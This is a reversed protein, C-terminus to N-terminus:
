TPFATTGRHHSRPQRPGSIRVAARPLPSSCPDCNLALGRDVIFVDLVNELGAGIPLAGNATELQLDVLDAGVVDRGTRDRTQGQLACRVTEVRHCGVVHRDGIEVDQEDRAMEEAAGVARLHLRFLNDIATLASANGARCPSVPSVSGSGGDWPWCFFAPKRRRKKGLDGM